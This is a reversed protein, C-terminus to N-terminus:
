EKASERAFFIIRISRMMHSEFVRIVHKPDYIDNDKTHRVETEIEEM